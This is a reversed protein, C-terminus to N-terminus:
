QPFQRREEQAVRRPQRHEHTLSNAADQGGLVIDRTTNFSDDLRGRMVVSDSTLTALRHDSTSTTQYDRFHM